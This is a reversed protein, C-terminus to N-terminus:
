EGIVGRKALSAVLRACEYIDDVSVIESYTHMNHLPVSVVATPIGKGVLALRDSLCQQTVGAAKRWCRVVIGLPCWFRRRCFRWNYVVM